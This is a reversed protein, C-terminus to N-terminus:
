LLGLILSVYVNIAINVGKSSLTVEKNDTNSQSTNCSYRGAHSLRLPFFFLISGTEPLVIGMRKGITNVTPPVLLM